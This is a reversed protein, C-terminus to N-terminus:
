QVDIKGVMGVEAHGPINCAFQFTGPKTFKWVFSQTAGPKATVMNREDHEMVMDPNQAMMLMM